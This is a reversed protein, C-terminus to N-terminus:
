ELDTYKFRWEELRYIGTGRGDGDIEEVFGKLRLTPPYLAVYTGAMTLQTEGVGKIKPTAWRLQYISGIRPHTEPDMQRIHADQPCVIDDAEDSYRDKFIRRLIAV